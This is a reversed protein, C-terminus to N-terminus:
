GELGLRLAYAEVAVARPGGDKARAAERRMARVDVQLVFPAVHDTVCTFTTSGGLTGVPAAPATATGLAAGGLWRSAGRSSACRVKCRARPATSTVLGDLPSATSGFPSPPLRRTVLFLLSVSSAGSYSLTLSESQCHSLRGARLQREHKRNVRQLQSKSNRWRTSVHNM